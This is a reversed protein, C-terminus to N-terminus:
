KALEDLYDAWKQMMVARDELHKTRNYAGGLRDPVVHALQAEIWDPEMKLREHLMTRAMARFGHGTIFSKEFGMYRLAANIANESLHKLHTRPTPFVYISHGSVPKLKTLIDVVQKSLPVTHGEKMKMRAGPIEWVAKELDVETWQMGRLEGPRVFTYYGIKLAAQVVESGNYANIAKLLGAVEVPEVPASYHNSKVPPLAGRLDAATNRTCKQIAIAWTYISIIHQLIRTALDLAGRKEIAQLVSLIDPATIEKIDMHGIAPFVEAEFRALITAAHAESWKAPQFRKIWERTITAFSDPKPTNQHRRSPKELQRTANPDIGAALLKKAKEREDRADALSVAPYAGFSLTKTLGDFRYAMRWLKGGTPSVFLYLGFGDTLKYAKGTKKAGSVQKDSLPAIRKPM